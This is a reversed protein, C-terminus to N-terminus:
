YDGRTQVPQPSAAAPQTTAGGGPQASAGAGGGGSPQTCAVLVGVLVALALIRRAFRTM